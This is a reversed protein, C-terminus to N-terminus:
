DLQNEKRLYPMVGQVTPAIGQVPWPEVGVMKAWDKYAAAM